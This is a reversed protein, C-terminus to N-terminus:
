RKPLAYIQVALKDDRQGVALQDGNPSFALTVPVGGTAVSALPEATAPDLFILTAGLTGVALLSGDPSFTGNTFSLQERTPKLTHLLKGSRADWLWLVQSELALLTTGDPQFVLSHAPQSLGELTHLLKGAELDWIEIRPDAEPGAVALLRGDASVALSTVAALSSKLTRQVEAREPSWIAVAGTDDGGIILRGDPSAVVSQLTGASGKLESLDSGAFLLLKRQDSIMVVRQNPLICVAQPLPAFGPQEVGRRRAFEYLQITGNISISSLVGGDRAYSLGVTLGRGILLRNERRRTEMNWLNVDGQEDSTTVLHQGDHSIAIASIRLPREDFRGLETGNAPNWARVSGDLSATLVSRGDPAYAIGRTFIGDRHGRLEYQLAGTQADLLRGLGDSGGVAIQKGDPAFAVATARYREGTIGAPLTFRFGPREAGSAVDWLRLTGDRSSSVLSQGDPAFAVAGIWDTHGSLVRVQRGSAPDWLRVSADTAGSALLTGDPSFALGRVWGTHGSLTQLLTGGAVDWVRVVNEDVASSALLRGDPSFALAFVSGRSGRLSRVQGSLDAKRLSITDDIGLALLAGDPSFQAPGVLTNSLELTSTILAANAATIAGPARASTTPRPASTPSFGPPAAPDGAPPPTPLAKVEGPQLSRVLQLTRPLLLALGLCIGFVVVVAGTGLAVLCGTSIGARVPPAPQQLSASLPPEVPAAAAPTVEPRLGLSRGAMMQVTELALLLERATQYRNPPRQELGRLLAQELLASLGPNLSRPGTLPTGAQHQEASPPAVGTLAQYLLACLTYTDSAREPETEARALEPARYPSPAGSVPRLLPLPLLRWGDAESVWVDSLWLEGLLLPPRQNHLHELLDILGRAQVLAEAEALPAGRARLTRELDQGGPDDCVLYFVPGDAFSDTPPLLAPHRLAAIRRALLGAAARSQEDPAPLASLLVLRGSQEDRARYVQGGPREDIAYTIRYRERVIADPPLM